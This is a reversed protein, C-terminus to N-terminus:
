TRSSSRASPASTARRSPDWRPRRSPCPSRLAPPQRSPDRDCSVAGACHAARRRPARARTWGRRPGAARAARIRERHLPPDGAREAVQAIALRAGRRARARVRSQLMEHERVQALLAVRRIVRERRRGRRERPRAKAPLDAGRRLVHHAAREDRRATAPSRKLQREPELRDWGVSFVPAGCHPAGTKSRLAPRTLVDRGHRRRAPALRLRSTKRRRSSRASGDHAAPGRDVGREAAGHADGEDPRHRRGARSGRVHRDARQLRLETRRAARVKEVVISGEGGANQVIM